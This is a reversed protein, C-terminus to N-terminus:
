ASCPPSSAWRRTGDALSQMASVLREQEEHHTELEEDMLVEIEYVNNVGLTVMRM